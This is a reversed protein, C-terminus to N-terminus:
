FYIFLHIYRAYKALIYQPNDRLNERKVVYPNCQKKSPRVIYEKKLAETIYKYANIYRMSSNDFDAYERFM